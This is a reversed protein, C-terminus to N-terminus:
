IKNEPLEELIYLQDLEKIRSLMVYAQAGEFVSRLDVVCKLPREITQGQVKHVTVAFALILPYQSATKATKSLTYEREMKTIVTGAPYKKAYNPHRKRSENGAKANDFKVILKEVSGCKSEEVGILIGMAGNCLLDSVDVNYILM